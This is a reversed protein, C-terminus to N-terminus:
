SLTLSNSRVTGDSGKVKIKLTTNSTLEFTMQGNTNPTASGPPFLTANGGINLGSYGLLTTKTQDYSINTLESMGIWNGNSVSAGELLNATKTFSSNVGNVWYRGGDIKIDNTTQAAASYINCKDIFNLGSNLHIDAVGTNNEFWVGDLIVGISEFDTGGPVEAGINPGVYIGGNAAALTTGNGEIDGGTIMLMRGHDFWVGWLSNNVVRPNNLRILNSYGGGASSTFHEAVFGYQSFSFECDNFDLAIGGYSRCARTGGTFIVNNFQSRVVDYLVCTDGNTTPGGNLTVNSFLLNAQFLTGAADGVTIFPTGGAGYRQVVTSAAEMGYFFGQKAYTQSAIQFPSTNYIGPPVFVPNGTSSIYELAKSFAATDDSGGSAAGFDARLSKHEALKAIAPNIESSVQRM